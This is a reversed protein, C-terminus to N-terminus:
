KIVVAKNYVIRNQKAIYIVIIISNKDLFLCKKLFPRNKFFSLDM